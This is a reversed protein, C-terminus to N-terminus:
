LERPDVGIGNSAADKQLENEQRAPMQPLNNYMGAKMSKGPVAATIAQGDQGAVALNKHIHGNIMIVHLNATDQFIELDDLPNGDVLILDAYYGPQVKGLEEPHGMM